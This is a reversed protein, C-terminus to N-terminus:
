GSLDKPDFRQRRTGAIHVIPLTASLENVCRNVGTWTTYDDWVVTVPSRSRERRTRACTQRSTHRM